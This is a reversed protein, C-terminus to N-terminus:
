FHYAFGATFNFGKVPYNWYYNYKKNLMNDIKLYVSLGKYLDYAAGVYLDNVEGQGFTKQSKMYKYGMNLSLAEVPHISVDANLICSPKFALAEDSMDWHRYIGELSLELVDKYIYSFAAGAYVNSSNEQGFSIIHDVYQQFLDDKLKQFGSYLRFHIGSYPSAKFGLSTNIQEYTNAIRQERFLQAYPCLNEMRRFDNFIRGGQAQAYFVYSDSFIYQVDIDPSVQLIKGFGFSFDVNVGANIKWSDFSLEYYPNLQLSTYDRMYKKTYFLNNMQLTIGIKQEDNVAGAINAKTYVRNENAKEADNINDTWNHARAYLMLNTEVNFYVPLTEGTSELGWHIDGSTFRQHTLPFFPPNSFNSLGWRGAIDMDLRDFQHLYDISAASRYYHQRYKGSEPFNLKGNMGDIGVAVGIKDKKSLASSYSLRAELNNYNGYGLRAYGRKADVQREQKSLLSLVQYEGFATAPVPVISYEIKKKAVTPEAIKPLINIKSADLIDPNYEQEVVVTRNLVSDKGIPQAFMGVSLSLFVLIGFQKKNIRKKM